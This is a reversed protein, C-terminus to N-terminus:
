TIFLLPHGLWMNSSETTELVQFTTNFVVPGLTNEALVEGLIGHKAGDFARNTLSSSPLKEESMDLKRAVSLPIISVEFGGDILVKPVINGRCKITRFLTNSREKGM